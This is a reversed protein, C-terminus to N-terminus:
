REGPQRFCGTSTKKPQMSLFWRQSKRLTAATFPAYTTAGPPIVSSFTRPGKVQANSFSTYSKLFGIAQGLFRVPTAAAMGLEIMGVSEQLRRFRQSCAAGNSSSTASALNKPHSNPQRPRHLVSAAPNRRHFCAARARAVAECRPKWAVWEYLRGALILLITIGAAGLVVRSFRFRWRLVLVSSTYGTSFSVHLRAAYLSRGLFAYVSAQVIRSSRSQTAFLPPAVVRIRRSRRRGNSRTSTVPEAGSKSAYVEDSPWTTSLEFITLM